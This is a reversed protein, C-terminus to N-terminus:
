PKTYDIWCYGSYATRDVKTEWTLTAGQNQAYFAINADVVDYRAQNPFFTNQGNTIYGGYQIIAEATIGTTIQAGYIGGGFSTITVPFCKRYIPKDNIWTGVVRETTSYTHLTSRYVAEATPIQTSTSSSNITGTTDYDLKYWLNSYDLYRWYESGIQSSFTTNTLKQFENNTSNYFFLTDEPFIDSSNTNILKYNGTYYLGDSFPTTGNTLTVNQTLPTIVGNGGSHSDVYTKVAQSTPIKNRSNSLTNEVAGNEAIVWDMALGEYYVTKLSGIFINNDMDYYVLENSFLENGATQSHLYIAYEGTEYFGTTLGTITFGANLVVNGELTKVETGGGSQSQVFDYVAKATPIDYDYSQSDITTAVQYNTLIWDNSDVDYEYFKKLSKNQEFDYLPIIINYDQYYAFLTEKPVLTMYTQFDQNFTKVKFNGTYYVGDIILQLNNTVDLDSDLTQIVLKSSITAIDESNQTIRGDFSRVLEVLSGETGKFEEFEAEIDELHKCLWLLQEEYTMAIKYSEPIIGYKRLFPPLLHM